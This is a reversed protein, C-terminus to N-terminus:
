RNREGTLSILTFNVFILFDTRARAASMVLPQAPSQLM